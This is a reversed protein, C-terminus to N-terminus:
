SNNVWEDNTQWTTPQVPGIYRVPGTTSPRSPYSGGTYVVVRMITPDSTADKLYQLSDNLTPGWNATGVSPILFNAM